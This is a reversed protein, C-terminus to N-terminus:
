QWSEMPPNENELGMIIIVVLVKKQCFLKYFMTYKEVMNQKIRPGCVCYVLLNIGDYLSHVLNHLNVPADKVPVTGMGAENLGTTDHLM